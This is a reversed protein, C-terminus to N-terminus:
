SVASAVPEDIGGGSRRVFLDEAEDFSAKYGAPSEKGSVFCTM